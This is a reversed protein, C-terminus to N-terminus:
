KSHWLEQLSRMVSSTTFLQQTQMSQVECQTDHWPVPARVVRPRHVVPVAPIRLRTQESRDQLIYDVISKQLSHNYDQLLSAHLSHPPTRCPCLPLVGGVTIIEQHLSDILASWDPNTLLSPALRSHVAPLTHEPFPALDEECM